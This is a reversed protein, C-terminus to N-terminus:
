ETKGNLSYIYAEKSATEPTLNGTNKDKYNMLKGLIVVDDGIKIQTDGEVWARNGLYLVSYVLFQTGSTTGDESINFTATGYDVNFTYKISSIKGKIYVDKDSKTGGELASAAATAGAANYPSAQTGDGSAESDSGGQDEDGGQDGSDSGGGETEGNLSYLYAEGAVTEPTNGRYNMLKGKIIVEDGVKIDTGSTYKEKGFYLARFIYFKTGSTTGDETIYFSANGYTGSEGYTGNSAIECIKGKVYVEDTSQYDSTSTWTLNAVAAAAGAPNYPDSLTGSGSATGSDGGGSSEGGESKGNLSYLYAENQVTEPTTGYQSVYKTVK